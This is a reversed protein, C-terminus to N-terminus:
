CSHPKIQLVQLLCNNGSATFSTKLVM